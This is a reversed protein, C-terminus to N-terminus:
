SLSLAMSDKGQDDTKWELVRARKLLREAQKPSCTGSTQDFRTRQRPRVSIPSSSVARAFDSEWVAGLVSRGM